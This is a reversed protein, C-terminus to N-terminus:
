IAGAADTATIEITVFEATPALRVGVAAAVTGAALSATTNVGPGVDVVFGPDDSGAYFAAQMGALFGKLQGAFEGLAQGKGDITRGVFSDAITQCGVAVRNIVDRYQAGQLNAM